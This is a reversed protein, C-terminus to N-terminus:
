SENRYIVQAKPTREHVAFAQISLAKLDAILGQATAIAEVFVVAHCGGEATTTTTTAAGSGRTAVLYYLRQERSHTSSFLYERVGGADVMSAHSPDRAPPAEFGDSEADDPSMILDGFLNGQKKRKGQKKKGAAPPGPKNPKAQLNRASVVM